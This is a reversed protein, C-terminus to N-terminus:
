ELRVTLVLGGTPVLLTETVSVASAPPDLPPDGPAGLNAISLVAEADANDLGLRRATEAVLAQSRPDASSRTIPTLTAEFRAEIAIRDAVPGVNRQAEFTTVGIDIRVLVRGESGTLGPARTEYIPDSEASLTDLGNDSIFGPDGHAFLQTAGGIRLSLLKRISLLATHTIPTGLMSSFTLALSIARTEVAPAAPPQGATARVIDQAAASPPPVTSGPEAAAAAQEDLARQGAAATGLRTQSVPIAAGSGAGQALTMATRGLDAATSLAQEAASGTLQAAAQGMQASLQTLSGIISALQERGSLDRFLGEQGIAALVGAATASDPLAVPAQVGLTAGPVGAQAEGQQFRSDTSVPALPAPQHPIPSDTWQFYRELDLFESGNARGLVAEAFLGGSPLFVQDTVAAAERVEPDAFHTIVEDSHTLLAVYDPIDRDMRQAQVLATRAAADLRRLRLVIAGPVMAVPQPDAVLDLPLGFTAPVDRHGLRLGRLLAVVEEPEIAALIARTLAHRHRLVEVRLEALFRAEDAILRAHADAAMRNRARVEAIDLNRERIEAPSPGPNALRPLTWELHHRRQRAQILETGIEDNRLNASAEGLHFRGALVTATIGFRREHGEVRLILKDISRADAITPFSFKKFRIDGTTPQSVDSGAVESGDERGVALSISVREDSVFSLRVILGDIRSQTAVLPPPETLPVPPAAPVQDEVFYRDGAERLEEPLHGRVIDWYDRIFRNGTFDLATIPLFLLPQVREIEIRVLYRQLLEYYSINLTHMHNYNTINTTTARATEAQEDEVVATTWLSRVASANQVTSLTIQQHLQSVIQREGGTDSEIVGSAGASTTVVGVALAGSVGGGVLGGVVTGVGPAAISGITAGLGAGLAVAGVVGAATAATNAETRSGGSLHERATASTVEELARTQVFEASVQEGQEALGSSSTRQARRWNVYAIQRQEGPALALSHTVEGLQIGLNIWRQRHDAAFGLGVVPCRVGEFIEGLHAPQKLDGSIPLQDICDTEVFLRFGKLERERIFSAFRVTSAVAGIARPILEAPASPREVFGNDRTAVLIAAEVEEGLRALDAVTAVGADLLARAQDESFGLAQVRAAPSADSGAISEAADAPLRGSAVALLLRAERVPRSALLSAPSDYGARALAAVRRGGLKAFDLLTKNEMM